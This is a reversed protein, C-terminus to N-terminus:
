HLCGIWAVPFTPCHRRSRRSIYNRSDGTALLPTQFTNPMTGALRRPKSDPLDLQLGHDYETHDYQPQEFTPLKSLLNIDWWSDSCKIQSWHRTFQNSSLCNM